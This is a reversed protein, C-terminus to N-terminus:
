SLSGSPAQYLREKYTACVAIGATVACCPALVSHLRAPPSTTVDSACAPPALPPQKATAGTLIVLVANICITVEPSSADSILGSVAGGAYRRTAAHPPHWKLM